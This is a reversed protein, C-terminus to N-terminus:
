WAERGVIRGSSMYWRLAVRGTPGHRNKAVICILDGAGTKREEETLGSLLMVGDADQEIAGSDRLDSLRPESGSRGEVERNLQALCLVPVGLQMAMRKFSNSIETTKEYINKGATPRVLGLYDVVVFGIGRTQRAMFGIDDVTLSYRQNIVLPRNSLESMAKVLKAWDADQLDAKFVSQYPLGMLAAARRAMLEDKSLELSVYLTKIGRKAVKDAIQLGLATKGGGPRAALVYFGGNVFGGLKADLEGYDSKVVPTVEGRSIKESREYFSLSAELSDVTDASKSDAIKETEQQLYACVDQPRVTLDNLNESVEACLDELARRMNHAVLADIYAEVNKATPTRDMLEILSKNDANVANGITVVDLPENEDSLRCAARFINQALPVSFNSESLRGRVIPLVPVPDILLAGIIAYETEVSNVFLAGVNM